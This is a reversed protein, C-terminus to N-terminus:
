SCFINILGIGHLHRMLNQVREHGLAAVEDVGRVDVVEPQGLLDNTSPQDLLGVSALDDKRGLEHTHTAQQQM